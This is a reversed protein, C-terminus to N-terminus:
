KIIREGKITKYALAVLEPVDFPKSIYDCVGLTKLEKALIESEVGTVVIVPLDEAYEKLRRLIEIGNAGPINIDLFVLDVSNKDIREFAEDANGATLVKFHGNFIAKFTEQIVPEDDVVLVTSFNETNIM